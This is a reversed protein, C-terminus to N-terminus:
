EEESAAATSAGNVERSASSILKIRTTSPQPTGGSVSPAASETKISDELEQLEPHADM